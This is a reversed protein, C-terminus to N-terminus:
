DNDDDEPQMHVTYQEPYKSRDFEDEMEPFMQYQIKAMFDFQDKRTQDNFPGYRISFSM